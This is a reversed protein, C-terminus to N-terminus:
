SWAQVLQSGNLAVALVYIGAVLWMFCVVILAPPRRLARVTLAAVIGVKVVLTSNSALLRDALPNLEIGGRDLLLRTIVVDAVNLVLLLGLAVVGARRLEAEPLTERGADAM